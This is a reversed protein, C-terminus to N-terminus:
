GLDLYSCPMETLAAVAIQPLVIPTHPGSGGANTGTGPGYSLLQSGQWWLKARAPLELEMPHCHAWHLRPPHYVSARMQEPTVGRSGFRRTQLTPLHMVVVESEPKVSRILFAPEVVWFSGQDLMALFHGCPSFALDETYAGMDLVHLLQLGPGKTEAYLVLMGAEMDGSAIAVHRSAWALHQIDTMCKVEVLVRAADSAAIFVARDAGEQENGAVLLHSGSPSFCAVQAEGCAPKASIATGRGVHLIILSRKDAAATDAATYCVLKEDPSWLVGAQGGGETDLYVLECGVAKLRSRRHCQRSHGQERRRAVLLTPSRPAWATTM